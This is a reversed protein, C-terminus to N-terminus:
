GSEEQGALLPTMSADAWLMTCREIENGIMIAISEQLLVGESSAVIM